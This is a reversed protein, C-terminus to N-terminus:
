LKATIFKMGVTGLVGIALTFLVTDRRQCFAQVNESYYGVKQEKCMSMTILMFLLMLFIMIEKKKALLKEKM